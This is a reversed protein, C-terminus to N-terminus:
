APRQLCGKHYLPYGYVCEVAVNASKAALVHLRGLARRYNETEPSYDTGDSFIDNSVILLHKTHAKLVEVDIRIKEVAAEVDLMDGEVSFMENAAWTGLCELLVTSSSPLSPAVSSLDTEREITTFGRSKRADRHRLIRYAMEQDCVRATALYFLPDDGALLMAQGEAWESKGSRVAGSVFIFAM